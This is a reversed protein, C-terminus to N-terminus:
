AIPTTSVKFPGAIALERSATMRWAQLIAFGYILISILSGPFGGKIVLLPLTAILLLFAGLGGLFGVGTDGAGAPSTAPEAIASDVSQTVQTTTSDSSIASSAAAEQKAVEAFVFPLYGLGIGLYTLLVAMVQYRRGGREESGKMVGKGVLWGLLIAILGIELDLFKAVGYWIAAGAIMGGIGFLLAKTFRRGRADLRVANGQELALNTRCASCIVATGVSWYQDDIPKSCSACTPGAASNTAPASFDLHEEPSGASTM